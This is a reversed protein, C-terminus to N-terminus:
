AKSYAKIRKLLKNIMIMTGTIIVTNGDIIVRIKWANWIFFTRLKAKFIIINGEKVPSKFGIQQVFYDLIDDVNRVDDFSILITKLSYCYVWIFCGLGGLLLIHIFEGINRKMFKNIVLDWKNIYSDIVSQDSNVIELSNPFLQNIILRNALLLEKGQPNNKVM